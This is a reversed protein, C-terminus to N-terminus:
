QLFAVSIGTVLILLLGPWIAKRLAPSGGMLAMAGKAVTNSMAALVISQSATTLELAGTSSLESMTLTIADVDALGSLISSLFIGTEGFYLYAARSVLLILGYLLGFRIAAGLDLPNPFELDSKESPPHALLLYGCYLLAALGAAAIPLWVVGLLHRNLVAVEVLVRSFMVTWAIMIALAFSKAMTSERKSRESFSLTVATSSVLGGLFGALGIGQQTGVVKILVYGLFNIGSIFVVMLWINFPILVDFPPELFSTNPLVPLIIASIVALQLAAFMEQRTLTRVFRDTEVKISLVFTTAIGIAIAVTLYGWYCLMGIMVAIIIAVETTIGVRERRWADTLYGIATLAGVLFLVAMLIWDFGSVDAVMAALGGGLSLLSFTREGATIQRDEAGHAFERQLGILFGIALATGFRVFLDFEAPM